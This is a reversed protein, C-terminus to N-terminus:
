KSKLASVVVDGVTKAVTNVGAIVNTPSSADAQDVPESTGFMKEGIKVRFDHQKEPPLDALYTPLAGLEIAKRRNEREHRQFRTAEVAAYSALVVLSLSTVVRSIATALDIAPTPPRMTMYASFACLSGLALAAIIRWRGASNQAANAENEHGAVISTSSTLSVLKAVKEKGSEIEKISAEAKSKLEDSLKTLVDEVFGESNSQLVTFAKSVEGAVRNLHGLEVGALSDLTKLKEAHEQRRQEQAYSFQEQFSATVSVANAREATVLSSLEGVREKLFDLEKQVDASSSEAAQLIVSLRRQYESAEEAAAALDANDPRSNLASINQLITDAYSNAGTLYDQNYSKQYEELASAIHACQSSIHDVVGKPALAPVTAKLRKETFTRVVRLRAILDASAPDAGPDKSVHEVAAEWNKLGRWVAHSQFAEIWQTV